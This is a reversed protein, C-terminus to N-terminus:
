ERVSSQIFKNEWHDCKLELEFIFSYIQFLKHSLTLKNWEEQNFIFDFITKRLEMNRSNGTASIKFEM